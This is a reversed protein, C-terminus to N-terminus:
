AKISKNQKVYTLETSPIVPSLTPTEMQTQFLPSPSEPSEAPSPTTTEQPAASPIISVIPSDAIPPSAGTPPSTTAPSTPSIQTALTNIEVKMGQSCHGITGCIFYRKGQSTLPITTAGDNSSQIPNTQQCSEYDSKTVEVVNHNPPYQFVNNDMCMNQSCSNSDLFLSGNNDEFSLGIGSSASSRSTTQPYM